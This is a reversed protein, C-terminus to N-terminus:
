ERETKADKLAAELEVCSTKWLDVLENQIRAQEEEATTLVDNQQGLTRVQSQLDNVLAKVLKSEDADKRKQMEKEKAAVFEVKERTADQQKIEFNLMRMLHEIENM